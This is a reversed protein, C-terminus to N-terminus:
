WFFLTLFGRTIIIIVTYYLSNEVSLELKSNASFAETVAVFITAGHIKATEFELRM